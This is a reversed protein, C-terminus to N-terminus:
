DEGRVPPNAAAQPKHLPLTFYFVTGRGPQSEHVGLDGGLQRIFLRSNTLGLGTGKVGEKNLRVFPEFIREWHEPAIGPGQDRIFVRAQQPEPSTWIELRTEPPSYNIANIILNMLVQEVVRSDAWVRLSQPLNLDLTIKKLALSAEFSRAVMRVLYALDEYSPSMFIEGKGLREHDNLNKILYGLARNNENIVDLDRDITEPSKGTKRQSRLGEIRVAIINLYNTANHTLSQIMLNKLRQQHRLQEQTRVLVQNQAVLRYRTKSLVALLIILLVLLAFVIANTQLIIRRRNDFKEFSFVIRIVRNYHDKQNPLLQDLYLYSSQEMAQWANEASVRLSPSEPVPPEQGSQLVRVGNVYLAIFKVSSSETQLQMLDLLGDYQNNTVCNMTMQAIKAGVNRYEQTRERALATLNTWIVVSATLTFVFALLGWIWIRQKELFPGVARLRNRLADLIM